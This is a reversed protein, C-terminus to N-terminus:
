SCKYMLQSVFTKVDPPPDLRLHLLLVCESRLGKTSSLFRVRLREHSRDDHLEGGGGTRQAATDGLANLGANALGREVCTLVANQQM